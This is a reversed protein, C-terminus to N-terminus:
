IVKIGWNKLFVSDNQSKKESIERVDPLFTSSAYKKRYKQLSTLGRKVAKIQHNTMERAAMISVLPVAVPQMQHRMSGSFGTKQIEAAPMPPKNDIGASSDAYRAPQLRKLSEAVVKYGRVPFANRSDSKRVSGNLYGTQHTRKGGSFGNCDVNEGIKPLYAM